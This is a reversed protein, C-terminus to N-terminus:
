DLDEPQFRRMVFGLWPMVWARGKYARWCAVIRATIRWIQYPVLLLAMGAAILGPHVRDELVAVMLACSGLVPVLVIMAVIFQLWSQYACFRVFPDRSFLAFWTSAILFIGQFPLYCLAGATKPSFGGASASTLDPSPEFEVGLREAVQEAAAQVEKSRAPPLRGLLLIPDGMGTRVSIAWWKLVASPKHAYVAAADAWDLLHVGNREVIRRREDLVVVSRRSRMGATVVLLGGPALCALCGLGVLTGLVIWATTQDSQLGMMLAVLVGLLVVAVPLLLAVALGQVVFDRSPNRLSLGDPHTEVYPAAPDNM